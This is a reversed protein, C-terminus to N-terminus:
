CMVGLTGPLVVSYMSSIDGPERPFQVIWVKPICYLVLSRRQQLALDLPWILDSADDDGDNDLPKLATRDLVYQVEEETFNMSTAAKYAVSSKDVALPLRSMDETPSATVLANTEDRDQQFVNVVATTHVCDLCTSRAEDSIDLISLTNACSVLYALQEYSNRQANAICLHLEELTRKDFAWGLADVQTGM